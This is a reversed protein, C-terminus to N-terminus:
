REFWRYSGRRMVTQAIRSIRWDGAVSVLGFSYHGYAQFYAPAQIPPASFRDIIYSCRAAAAMGGLDVDVQVNFFTHRVRGRDLAVRCQEVYLEAPLRTGPIDPMLSYESMVESCLCARMLDFDKDDFAQFFRALRDKVGYGSFTEDPHATAQMLNM